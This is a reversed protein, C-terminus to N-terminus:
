NGPKLASIVVVFNTTRVPPVNTEWPRIYKLAIETKGESVAKFRFNWHTKAGLGEHFGSKVRTENVELKKQFTPM